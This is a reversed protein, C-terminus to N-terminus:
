RDLGRVPVVGRNVRSAPRICWEGYGLSEIKPGVATKREHVFEVPSEVCSKSARRRLVGRRLPVDYVASDLAYRRYVQVPRWSPGM